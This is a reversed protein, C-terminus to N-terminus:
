TNKRDKAVSSRGFHELSRLYLGPGGARLQFQKVSTMAAPQM